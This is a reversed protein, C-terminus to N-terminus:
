GRTKKNGLERSSTAQSSIDKRSHLGEQKVPSQAPLVPLIVVGRSKPTIHPRSLAEIMAQVEKHAVTQLSEESRAEDVGGVSGSMEKRDEYVQKVVKAVVSRNKALFGPFIYQLKAPAASQSRIKLPLVSPLCSAKNGPEVQRVGMDYLAKGLAEVTTIMRLRQVIMGEAKLMKMAQKENERRMEVMAQHYNEDNSQMPGSRAAQEMQEMEYFHRDISKQCRRINRSLSAFSEPKKVLTPLTTGSFPSSVHTEPGGKTDSVGEARQRDQGPVEIAPMTLNNAQYEEAVDLGSLDTLYGTFGEVCTLLAQQHEPVKAFVQSNAMAVQKNYTSAKQAYAQLLKECQHWNDEGMVAQMTTDREQQPIARIAEVLCCWTLATKLVHGASKDGSISLTKILLSLAIMPKSFSGLKKILIPIARNLEDLRAAVCTHSNDKLAELWKQVEPYLNHANTLFAKASTGLAAGQSSTVLPVGALSPAQPPSPPQHTPM